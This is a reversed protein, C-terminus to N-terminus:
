LKKQLETVVSGGLNALKKEEAAAMMKEKFDMEELVSEYFPHWVNERQVTAIVSNAKLDDYTNGIGFPKQEKREFYDKTVTRKTKYGQTAISKEIRTTMNKFEVKQITRAEEKIKTPEKELNNSWKKFQYM